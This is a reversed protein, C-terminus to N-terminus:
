RTYGLARLQEITEKDLEPLNAFQSGSLYEDALGALHDRLRAEAADTVTVATAGAPEQELDFLELKDRWRILKFGDTYVALSDPDYWAPRGEESRLEVETFYPAPDIEGSRLAPILSRGQVPMTEAATMQLITPALDVAGVTTDIVQHRPNRYDVVVLPVHIVTEWLTAGHGFWRHEGLAEGHDAILIVISDSLIGLQELGDLLHGVAADAARVEGDYLARIAALKMESDKIEKQHGRIEEISAGDAFPGEYELESLKRRAHDTLRLPVHADFNHYWLFVPKDSTRGRLWALALEAAERGDRFPEESREPDSVVDFGKGLNGHYIMAKYCVFAGTEYGASRLREALTPTEAPLRGYNSRVAHTRPYLGTLMTAHSPFTTGASVVAHSFVTGRDALADLNPTLGGTAGYASMRDSRFTDLSILIINPPDPEAAQQACAALLAASLLGIAAAGFRFTKPWRLTVRSGKM